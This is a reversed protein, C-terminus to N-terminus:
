IARGQPRQAGGGYVDAREFPLWRSLGGAKVRGHIRYPMGTKWVDPSLAKIQGLWDKSQTVAELRMPTASGAPLLMTVRSLGKAFPRGNIELEFDLAEIRVDFDNPNFLRLELEFRQELAGLSRLSLDALEVRPAQAGPPLSACAALVSAIVFLFLSRM